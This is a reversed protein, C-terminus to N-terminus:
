VCLGVIPFVRWDIKRCLKESEETTIPDEGIHESLVQLAEDDGRKRSCTDLILTLVVLPKFDLGYWAPTGAKRGKETISISGKETDEVSATTAM